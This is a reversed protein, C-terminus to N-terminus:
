EHLYQCLTDMSKQTRPQIRCKFPEPLVTAHNTFLTPPVIEKGNSDLAPLIDCTALVTSIVAFVSGEAFYMGPCERRGFGFVINNVTAMKLDSGEFRDPNFTDPDSFVESDHLMNWINAVVFSGKPIFQGEYLDDASAARPVGLPLPPCWRLIETIISRVYPLADKDVTDPLRENGIVRDIEEQARKQVSPHLIMLLFFLSLLSWNTDLGGGFTGVAALAINREEAETLAKDAESIAKSCMNPQHSLGTTMNKKAWLFPKWTTDDMQAKYEKAIQWFGTGPAWKPLYKLQPILNVLFTEPKLARGVNETMNLGLSLFEDDSGVVDYGYVVRMILKGVTWKISAQLNEGGNNRILDMTLKRAELEQLSHYRSAAFSNFNQVMNKRQLRWEDNYRSLGFIHNFGILDSMEMRPRDSYNVSRKALLDLCVRSSNLVVIPQGLAELYTIEGFQAAWECFKRADAFSPM